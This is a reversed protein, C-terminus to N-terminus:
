NGIKWGVAVRGMLGSLNVKVFWDVPYQGGHAAKVRDCIANWEEECSTAELDRIDKDNLM